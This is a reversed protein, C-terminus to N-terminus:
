SPPVRGPLLAPSLQEQRWVSLCLSCHGASSWAPCDEAEWLVVLCVGPAARLDAAAPTSPAAESPYFGFDPSIALGHTETVVGM